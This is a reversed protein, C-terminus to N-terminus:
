QDNTKTDKNINIVSGEFVSISEQINASNGIICNALTVNRDICVDNWVICDKLSAGKKIVGNNGVVTFRGIKVDEELRCNDGIVCPGELTVRPNIKTKKGIWINNATKEGPINIKVKGSLIDSQARRYESLNGIDCWYEDAQYGYIKLKKNLLLPWLNHGFDYFKNKPIYKFVAPEFIYIGTNVTNSFISSWTPKELFKSIKGTKDLMVVGYEFRADVQKLIMTALSKKRRHSDIARSLNIDTLGDGSMVLFTEDFFREAKKVGGATGMLKKEQSYQIRIGWKSGSGFYNKIMEGQHHLNVVVEKIGYKILLELTHELVPKNVISIMPKPIDYTLPRLRTGVGAAMVFAKM